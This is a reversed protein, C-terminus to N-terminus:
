RKVSVRGASMHAAKVIQKSFGFSCFVFNIIEGAVPIYLFSCWRCKEPVGRLIVTNGHYVTNKVRLREALFLNRKLKMYIRVATVPRGCAILVSQVIYIIFHQM